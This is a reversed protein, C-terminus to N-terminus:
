CTFSAAFHRTKSHYPMLKNFTVNNAATIKQQQLLSLLGSPNPLASEQLLSSFRTFHMPSYGTSSLLKAILFKAYFRDTFTSFPTEM